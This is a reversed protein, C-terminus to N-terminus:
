EEEPPEPLPMWHTVSDTKCTGYESDYYTWAPGTEGKYLLDSDEEAKPIFTYVDQKRHILEGRYWFPAYCLYQGREEPLRDNVSIWEGVLSGGGDMKAGCNCYPEKKYEIRGCIPCQYQEAVWDGDPDSVVKSIDIWKSHVASRGLYHEMMQEVRFVPILRSGNTYFEKHDVFSYDTVFEKWDRPFSMTDGM